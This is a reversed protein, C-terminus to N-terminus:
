AGVANVAIRTVRKSALDYFIIVLARNEQTQRIDDVAVLFDARGLEGARTFYRTQSTVGLAVADCETCPRFRVFGGDATPFTVVPLALEYAGEVVELTRAASATGFAFTLAIALFTRLM